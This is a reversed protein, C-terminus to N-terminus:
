SRMALYFHIIIIFGPMNVKVAVCDKLMIPIHLKSNIICLELYRRYGSKVM